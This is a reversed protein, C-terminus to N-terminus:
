LEMSGQDMSDCKWEVHVGHFGGNSSEMGHIWPIGGTLPISFGVWVGCFDREVRAWAGYFDSEDM